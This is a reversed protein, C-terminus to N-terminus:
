FKDGDDYEDQRFGWARLRALEEDDPPRVEYDIIPGYYESEIAAYASMGLAVIVDIKHTTKEKAIRWGRSSEIAVAQNASKRLDEDEYLVINKHKILEFLNQGMATLNGTTQPFEEMPLGAVKLTTASRHFQYPDFLIVAIPYDDNLKLLYSEITNELDMPDAQTPQWIRHKVLVVKSTEYDYFTAAVASSDRKTSADVAVSLPVQNGPMIPSHEKDICADWWDMDIFAEENTTWQNEHLRLFANRRLDESQKRYYDKTQWPMRPKHDWYFYLDKNVKVPIDKHLKKGKGGKKYLEWLLESEGEWGAYTTVLRLSNKRTPVPTLEDYLRRSSESTYAWLEDWVTLGHNSGAASAYDSALPTITTGTAPFLIEKKGVTAGQKLYSNLNIARDITKYVRGQAQEFDNAVVFVENPHEQTLAFWLAILAAITSKGSKKPASYVITEYPFRGHKNATFIDKLIQRQHPQLVIPKRTEALFFQEEAFAVIDTKYREADRDTM